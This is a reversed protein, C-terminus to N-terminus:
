KCCGRRDTYEVNWGQSGHPIFIEIPDIVGVHKMVLVDGNVEPAIRVTLGDSDLHISLVRAESLEPVATAIIAEARETSVFNPLQLVSPTRNGDSSKM